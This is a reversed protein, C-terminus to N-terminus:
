SKSLVLLEDKFIEEEKGLGEEDEGDYPDTDHEYSQFASLSLHKPM